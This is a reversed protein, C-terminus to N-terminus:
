VFRGNKSEQLVMRFMYDNKLTYDIKGTANLFNKSQIKEM